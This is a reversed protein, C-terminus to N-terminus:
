FLDCWLMEEEESEDDTQTVIMDDESSSSIDELDEDESDSTRHQSSPQKNQLYKLKSPKKDCYEVQKKPTLTKFWKQLQEIYKRFNDDIESQFQKREKVSLSKSQRCLEAFVEKTKKAKGMEAMKRKCYMACISSTPMKPEGPYSRRKAKGQAIKIEQCRKSYQDKEEQSLKRWRKSWVATIQKQPVGSMRSKQDRCFLQYGNMRFSVSRTELHRRDNESEELAKNKAKQKKRNKRLETLEHKQLKRFKEMSKKYDEKAKKAQQVYKEKNKTSLSRYTANALKMLDRSNLGPNRKKLTDKNDAFYMANASAPKKPPKTQSDMLSLVRANSKDMASEADVILETLTKIKRLKEMVQDWKARCEEPTFDKFAVTEWDLTKLGVSWIKNRERKEICKKMSELLARIDDITWKVSGSTEM